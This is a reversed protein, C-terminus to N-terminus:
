IDLPIGPPKLNGEDHRNKAFPFFLFFFTEDDLDM